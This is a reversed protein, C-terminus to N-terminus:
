RHLFRHAQHAHHQGLVRALAFTVSVSERLRGGAGSRKSVRLGTAPVLLSTTGPRRAQTAQPSVVDHVPRKRAIVLGVDKASRLMPLHRDRHEQNVVLRAIPRSHMTVGVRLHENQVGSLGAEHKVAALKESAGAVDENRRSTRGM